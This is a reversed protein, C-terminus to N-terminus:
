DAYGSIIVDCFAAPLPSNDPYPDHDEVLVGQSRFCYMKAM